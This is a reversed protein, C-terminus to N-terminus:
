MTSKEVNILNPIIITFQTGQEPESEMKIIGNLKEITEKVIYLGLGSGVSKKSVRYFMDFIKEQHEKGIGIGNDKVIIIANTKQIDVRVSVYPETVKPNYYRVANSILNNFVISLRSPDSYFATDAVVDIKINVASDTDMHKLNNKVEHLLEGFNVPKIHLKSRSNRSYDLIDQIFTDLKSASNKLLAIDGLVNKDACETQILSIIGMMSALPARLDHSVSYVFRDLEKNSKILEENSAQIAEEQAKRETIDRFNIVIGNISPDHLMSHGTGEVWVYSGDKKLRRYQVVTTGNPNNIAGLRGADIAPIDDPHVHGKSSTGILEEPTFGTVRYIADSAFLYTSDEGIVTIVDSSNVILSRFRHESLALALEAEKRESIDSSVGDIRILKGTEDLTPTIKSELWRISGDKHQIRYEQTFPKGARMVPYNKDINPKDEPLVVEYWLNSNAAFDNVSYGYLRECTRSMQLLAYTEMDVSFYVEHINEFLRTLEENAKILEQKAKKRNTINEITGIIRIPKGAADKIIDGRERVTKEINGPLLLRHEVDYPAGTALTNQIANNIIAADDPHVREFFKENSIDTTKPDYGLINYTEDSWYLANLAMDTPHIAVEWSGVQSIKQSSTLHTERRGAEEDAIKKSESLQHNASELAEIQREYEDYCKSVTEILQQISNPVSDIDGFQAALQTKLLRNM